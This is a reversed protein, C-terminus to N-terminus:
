SGLLLADLASLVEARLSDEQVAQGADVVRVSGTGLQGGALEQALRTAAAKRQWQRQRALEVPAPRHPCRGDRANGDKREMRCRPCIPDAYHSLQHDRVQAELEPTLGAPQAPPLGYPGAAKSAPEPPENGFWARRQQPSAARYAQEPTLSPGALLARLDKTQYM